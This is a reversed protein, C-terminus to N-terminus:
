QKIFRITKAEGDNTYVTLQYAGINLASLNLQIQNAGKELKYVSNQVPIGTFNTIEVKVKIQKVADIQLVASHTILTPLLAKITFKEKDKEKEDDDKNDLVVINSYTIKGNQDTLKIRYYNLGDRLDKDTFSTATNALTQLTTFSVGNGSRQLEIKKTNLATIGTIAWNLIAKEKKLTATLTVVTQGAAISGSNAIVFASSTNATLASITTALPQTQTINSQIVNWATTYQGLDVPATYNFGANGDSPGYVFSVNVPAVPTASPTIYWTRNVAANSNAIPPTIGTAARIGYTLGQGNNIAITNTTSGASTAIPLNTSTAVNTIVLKGTGNTVVAGSNGNQQLVGATTFDFNNLVLSPNQGFGLTLKGEITRPANLTVSGGIIEVNTPGNVAPFEGGIIGTAAGSYVLRAGPAYVIKGTGVLIITAPSRIGLTDTITLTTNNAVTITSTSGFAYLKKLTQNSNIVLAGDVPDGVTISNTAPLTGGGPKNLTLSSGPASNITTLGTYTNAGSLIIQGGPPAAFTIGRGAGTIASKIEIPGTTWIQNEGPYGLALTMDQITLPIASRNELIYNSLPTGGNWFNAGNLTLTGAITSSNGIVLPRTRSPDITIKGLSLSGLNFDINASTATGSNNFQAIDAPLWAGPGVNPTWNVAEYWDTGATINAWQIVGAVTHSAISGVNGIVLPTNTNATLTSITTTLPQTQTINSQIVNWATTYQGLDVPATYNFGANGHTNAYAFSVNVGAAPTASPTIYWTRNVANNNNLIAPNIGQEVRVGYTLGQGNGITVSNSGTQLSAWVPFTVPVTGINTIFLKGSGDTVIISNATAGGVTFDANGLLFPSNGTFLGSITRSEHLRVFFSNSVSVNTPGDVAPFEASSTSGGDFVYELSAGPTYVIKGSGSLTVRNPLMTLKGTITLTAGDGVTLSGRGITVNNLTQNTLVELNGNSSVIIDNGAPLTGGGPHNLKLRVTNGGGGGTITTIGTYTNSGTLEVIGGPGGTISLGKGIGTINSEITISSTVSSLTTIPQVLAVNMTKGTGTSNNQIILPAVFSSLGGHLTLTGPTTSSNGITIPGSPPLGAGGFNHNTNIGGISLNGQSFDIGITKAGADIFQATSSSLWANPATNPTWNSANYWDFNTSANNWIIQAQSTGWCFLGPLVISVLRIFKKSAFSIAIGKVSYNKQM